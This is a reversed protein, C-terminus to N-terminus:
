IKRNEVLKKSIEILFRQDCQWGEGQIDIHVSARLPVKVSARPGPLVQCEFREDHGLRVRDVRLDFQLRFEFKFNPFGHPIYTHYKGTGSLLRDAPPM